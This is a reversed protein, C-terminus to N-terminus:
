CILNCLSGLVFVLLSVRTNNVGGRLPTPGARPNPDDGHAFVRHIWTNIDIDGLEKYFPRDPCSPEPYMWM